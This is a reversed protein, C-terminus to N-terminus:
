LASLVQRVGDIVSALVLGRTLDVDLINVVDNTTDTIDVYTIKTTAEHAVGYTTGVYSYDTPATSATMWFTSGPGAVYVLMDGDYPDLTLATPYDHAAFGMVSSPDAGCITLEGTVLYVMSGELPTEGTALTYRRVMRGEECIAPQHAM